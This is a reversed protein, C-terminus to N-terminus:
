RQPKKIQLVVLFAFPSMENRRQKNDPYSLFVNLSFAFHQLVHLVFFCFVPNSIYLKTYKHNSVLLYKFNFLMKDNNIAYTIITSDHLRFAVSKNTKVFIM